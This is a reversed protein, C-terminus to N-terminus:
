RRKVRFRKQARRSRNGSTDTAVASVTYTNAALRTTITFGGSSKKARLRKTKKVSRCRRHGSGKRCRRVKYTLKASLSRVQGGVDSAAVKITCKGRRCSIKGIRAHPRTTDPVPPVIAPQVPGV